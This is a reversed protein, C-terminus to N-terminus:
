QEGGREAVAKQYEGPDDVSAPHVGNRDKLFAAPSDYDAAAFEVYDEACFASHAREDPTM